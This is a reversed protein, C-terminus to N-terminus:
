KSLAAAEVFGRRCASCPSVFQYPEGRATGIVIVSTGIPYEDLVVGDAAPSALVTLDRNATWLGGPAVDVPYGRADIWTREYSKGKWEYYTKESCPQMGSCGGRLTAPTGATGPLVEISPADDANIAGLEM